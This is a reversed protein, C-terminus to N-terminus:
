SRTRGVLRNLMEFGVASNPAPQMGDIRAFRQKLEGRLIEERQGDGITSQPNSSWSHGEDSSYLVVRQGHIKIIKKMFEASNLCIASRKGSRTTLSISFYVLLYKFPLPPFGARCRLGFLRVTEPPTSCRNSDGIPIRIVGVTRGAHWTKERTM